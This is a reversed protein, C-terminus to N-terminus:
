RVNEAKGGCHVCCLAPVHQGSGCAGKATSCFLFLVACMEVDFDSLCCLRLQHCLLEDADCSDHVVTVAVADLRLFFSSAKWQEQNDATWLGFSQGAVSPDPLGPLYLSSSTRCSAGRKGGM